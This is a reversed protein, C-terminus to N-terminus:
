TTLAIRRIYTKADMFSLCFYQYADGTFKVTFSSDRQKTIWAYSSGNETAQWDTLSQKNFKIM